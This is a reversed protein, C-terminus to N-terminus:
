KGFLRRLRASAARGLVLPKEVGELSVHTESRNLVEVTRVLDLNVLLSRDLRAFPPSPLSAEWEHIPRLILMCGQGVTCVSSYAGEARIAAIKAVQVLRLSGKDRLTVLDRLELPQSPDQSEASEEPEPPESPSAPAVNVNTHASGNALLRRVTEALREPHVPKLLYDFANAEFARVAFTDHATVFVIRPLPQLQPLADFGCGPPMQIDLFIIDPKERAAFEVTAQVSDAEGVVEIERHALLLERLRKRALREDDVLLARFPPRM